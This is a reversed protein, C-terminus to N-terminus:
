VDFVKSALPVKRKTVPTGKASSAKSTATSNALSTSSKSKILTKAEEPSTASNGQLKSVCDNIKAIKSKELSETFPMVSKEGYVLQMRALCFAASDRVSPISDDMSKVVTKVIAALMQKPLEKIVRKKAMSRNIFDLTESRVTPNAHSLFPELDELM